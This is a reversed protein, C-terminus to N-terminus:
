SSVSPSRSRSPTEDAEESSSEALALISNPIKEKDVNVKSSDPSTSNLFDEHTYPYMSPDESSTLYVNYAISENNRQARIKEVLCGIGLGVLTTLLTSAAAIMVVLGIPNNFIFDKLINLLLEQYGNVLLSVATSAVAGVFFGSVAGIKRGTYQNPMSQTEKVKEMIVNEKM